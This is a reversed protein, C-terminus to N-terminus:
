DKTMSLNKPRKSQKLSTRSDLFSSIFIDFSAFVKVERSKKIRGETDKVGDVPLELELTKKFALHILKLPRRPYAVALVHLADKKTYHKLFESFIEFYSYFYHGYLSRAKQSECLDHPFRFREDQDYTDQTAEYVKNDMHKKLASTNIVEDFTKTIIYPVAEFKHRDVDDHGNPNTCWTSRPFCMHFFDTRWSYLFFLEKAFHPEFEQEEMIRNLREYLAGSLSLQKIQQQKVEARKEKKEFEEEDHITTDHGDLDQLYSDARSLCARITWYFRLRESDSRIGFDFSSHPVNGNVDEFDEFDEFDDSLM